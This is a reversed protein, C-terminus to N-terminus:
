VIIVWHQRYIHGHTGFNEVYWDEIAISVPTPVLKTLSLKNTKGNLTICIRKM